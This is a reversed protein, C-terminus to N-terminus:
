PSPKRSHGVPNPQLRLGLRLEAKTFRKIGGKDIAALLIDSDGDQPIAAITGVWTPHQTEYVPQLKENFVTIISQKATKRAISRVALHPKGEYRFSVAQTGWM